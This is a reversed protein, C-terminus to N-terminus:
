KEQSRLGDKVAKTILDILEPSMVTKPIPEAVNPVRPVAIVPLTSDKSEEDPLAGDVLKPAVPAPEDGLDGRITVNVTIQPAFVDMVVTQKARTRKAEVGLVGAEINQQGILKQVLATLEETVGATETATNATNTKNGPSSMNKV